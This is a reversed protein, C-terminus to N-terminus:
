TVRLRDGFFYVFGEELDLYLRSTARFLFPLEEEFEIESVADSGGTADWRSKLIAHVFDEPIWATAHIDM